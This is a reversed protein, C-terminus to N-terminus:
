KIIGRWYDLLDTFIQEYSIEPKWGTAKKFKDCCPIQLTVDSPRLLNKDVKIKIQSRNLNSLEIMKELYRGVTMTTNGGINYVEGAPCKQAMLWYARVADKVHAITRVSNLNGVKIVPKQLGKEIQVIQKTFASEFFVEGRRAGAHTFTRARITKLGYSCFYQYALLDEAAKSVGYPSRPRLPCTEKIPVDKKTVQGYVESSTIVAITPNYGDEKKLKRITELLHTIPLTNNLLTDVPNDFSFKVYSQAALHFIKDPRLKDIVNLSSIGDTLDCDEFHIKDQIHKLNDM